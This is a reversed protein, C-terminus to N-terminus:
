TQKSNSWVKDTQPEGLLTNKERRRRMEEIKEKDAALECTYM